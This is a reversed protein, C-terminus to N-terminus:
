RKRFKELKEGQERVVQAYATKLVALKQEEAAQVNALQQLKAKLGDTSSAWDDMGSSAAKFESNALKIARNAESMAAKFDSIDAAFQLTTKINEDPM